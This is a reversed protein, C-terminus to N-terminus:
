NYYEKQMRAFIVDETKVSYPNLLFSEKEKELNIDLKNNKISYIKLDKQIIAWAQMPVGSKSWHFKIIYSKTKYYNEKLFASTSEYLNYKEIIHELFDFSATFRQKKNIYQM